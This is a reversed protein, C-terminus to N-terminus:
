PGPDGAPRRPPDPSIAALRELDDDLELPETVLQGAHTVHARPAPVFRAAGDTVQVTGAFPPVDSNTLVVDADRDAGVRNEGEHLWELGVLSLWGEPNRLRALRGAREAEVEDAHSVPESLHADPGM